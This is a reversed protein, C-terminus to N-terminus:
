RYKECPKESCKQPCNKPCNNPSYQIAGRYERPRFDESQEYKNIRPKAKAFKNPRAFKRSTGMAMGHKSGGEHTRMTQESNMEVDCVRCYYGKTGYIKEIVEGEALPAEAAAAEAAAKERCRELAQRM